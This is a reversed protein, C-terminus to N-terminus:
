RLASSSQCVVDAVVSYENTIEEGFTPNRLWHMGIQFRKDNAFRRLDLLSEEFNECTDLAESIENSLQNRDVIAEGFSPDLIAELVQPRRALYEALKPATSLVKRLQLFLLPNNAILSFIQVGSPLGVSLPTWDDSHKM